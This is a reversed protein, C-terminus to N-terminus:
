GGKYTAKPDLKPIVHGHVVQPPGGLRLYLHIWRVQEAFSLPIAPRPTPGRHVHLNPTCDLIPIRKTYAKGISPFALRLEARHQDDRVCLRYTIDRFAQDVQEANRIDRHVHSEVESTRFAGLIALVVYGITLATLWWFATREVNSLSRTAM